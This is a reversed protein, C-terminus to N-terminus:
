GAALLGPVQPHRRQRLDRQHLRTSLPSASPATSRSRRQRQGPPQRPRPRATGPRPPGGAASTAAQFHAARDPAAVPSNARRWRGDPRWRSGGPRRQSQWRRSWRTSGPCATCSPTTPARRRTPTLVEGEDGVLRLNTVVAMPDAMAVVGRDAAGLGLGHRGDGDNRRALGVRDPGLSRCPSAWRPSRPASTSLRLPFRRGDAQWLLPPWARLTWPPCQQLM